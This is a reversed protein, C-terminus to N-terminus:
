ISVYFGDLFAKMDTFFEELPYKQKDFVYYDALGTYLTELKQFMNKLVACEQKAQKAFEKDNM